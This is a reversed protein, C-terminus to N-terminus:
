DLGKVPYDPTPTRAQEFYREMRAVVDPHQAAVDRSEARDGALNYLETKAGVGNRVGKWDGARVAQKFVPRVHGYDWYLYEHERQDGRGLLTPAYSIGDPGRPHLLGALEARHSFFDGSRASMIQMEVLRGRHMGALVKGILPVRIGGEYLDRKVGRLGGGSGFFDPRHSKEASPGNDSTFIILTNCDLGLERIQEMLVGVHRDLLTVMAAYNKETQPWGEDTYPADTPVIQSEPTDKPYDSWHPITYPLYLFFPKDKNETIFRLARDTFLDHTYEGRKEGRNGFLLVVRDNEM